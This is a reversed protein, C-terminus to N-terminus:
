KQIKEKIEKKLKSFKHESLSLEPVKTTSNLISELIKIIEKKEKLEKKLAKWDINPNNLISFIDILDKKGKSTGKRAKYTFLKTLLLLHLKPVNFGKITETEEKLKKVSIGLKSYYPVYIDVDTEKLKIEYKKLRDNKLVKFKDKIKGLQDYSIIIDIDKSKLAKTYIYVAWDEILTFDIEKKLEKLIDFSKEVTLQHYYEPM